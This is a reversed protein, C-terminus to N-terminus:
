KKYIQYQDRGRQKAQYMAKDAMDVLDDTKNADTITQCAIGISVTVGATKKCPVSLRIARVAELIENALSVAGAEDTDPLVIAFEEGGWRCFSDLPRTVCSSITHAVAKLATDGCDHGYQDNFIKFHDIDIFLVSMYRHSRQSSKRLREFEIDFARRNSLGTLPDTMSMVSALSINVANKYFRYILLTALLLFAIYSAILYVGKKLFSTELNKSSDSAVTLLEFNRSPAFGVYRRDPYDRSPPLEVSGYKNEGLSLVRSIDTQLQFSTSETPLPYRFAAHGDDNKIFVEIVAGNLSNLSGGLSSALSNVSIQQTLVGRFRHQFDLVPTAIHFVLVGNTRGIVLNGVAYPLGPNNKLTQFYLRGSVDISNTSVGESTARVIGNEDAFVTLQFQTNNIYQNFAAHSQHLIRYISQDNPLKTRMQAQIGLKSQDLLKTADVLTADLFSAAVYADRALEEERDEVFWSHYTYFSFASSGSLIIM